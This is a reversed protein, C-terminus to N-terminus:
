LVSWVGADSSCTELLHHHYDSSRPSDRNRQQPFWVGRRPSSRREGSPKIRFTIDNILNIVFSSILSWKECVKVLPVRNGDPGAVPIYVLPEKLTPRQGEKPGSFPGFLGNNPGLNQYETYIHQGQQGPRNQGSTGAFHVHNSDFSFASFFILSYLGMLFFIDWISNFLIKCKTVSLNQFTWFTLAPDTLCQFNHCSLHWCSTM